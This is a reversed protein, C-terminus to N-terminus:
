IGSAEISKTSNAVILAVLRFLWLSLVFWLCLNIGEMCATESISLKNQTQLLKLSTAMDCMDIKCQNISMWSDVCASNQVAFNFHM